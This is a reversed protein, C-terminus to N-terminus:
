ESAEPCNHLRVILVTEDGRSYNFGPLERAACVNRELAELAALDDGSRSVDEITIYPDDGEPLLDPLDEFEALRTDTGLS